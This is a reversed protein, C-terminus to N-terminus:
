ISTRSAPGLFAAYDDTEDGVAYVDRMELHVATRHTGALLEAFTATNLQQANLPM